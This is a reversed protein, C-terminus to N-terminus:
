HVEYRSCDAISLLRAPRGEKPRGFQVCALVSQYFWVYWIGSKRDGSDYLGAYLFFDGMAGAVSTGFDGIQQIIGLHELPNEILKAYMRYEQPIVQETHRYHLGRAIKILVDRYKMDNATKIGVFMGRYRGDDTFANVVSINSAIRYYDRNPIGGRKEKGKKFARMMAQFASEHEPVGDPAFFVLYNRFREEHISLAENCPRCAPAYYFISNNAEPALCKPPVHDDTLESEQGCLYCIGFEGQSEVL